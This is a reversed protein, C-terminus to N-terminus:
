VLGGDKDFCVDLIVLRRASSREVIKENFIAKVLKKRNKDNEQM